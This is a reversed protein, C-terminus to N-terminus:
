NWPMTKIKLTNTLQKLSVVSNEVQRRPFVDRPDFSRLLRSYVSSDRSPMCSYTAETCGYVTIIYHREDLSPKSSSRTNHAIPVTTVSVQDKNKEIGLEACISIVYQHDPIGVPTPDPNFALAVKRNKADILVASSVAVKIETLIPDGLLIPIGLDYGMQNQYAQAAAGRKLLGCFGETTFLDYDDLQAFHTFNVWADAFATELSPSDPRARYPKAQRITEWVKPAFLRKFFDLLRVPRHFNLGKESLPYRGPERLIACDHAVVLLTRAVLEGRDGKALLGTSLTRGLIRPAHEVITENQNHDNLFRAAVEALMPESSFGSWMFERSEPIMFVVRMYSKVLNMQTDRAEASFPDYQLLVRCDLAALLMTTDDKYRAAGFKNVAFKITLPKEADPLSLYYSHWRPYSHPVDTRHLTLESVVGPRIEDYTKASM